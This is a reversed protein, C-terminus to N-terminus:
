GQMAVRVSVMVHYLCEYYWLVWTRTALLCMLKNFKKRLTLALTLVLMLIVVYNNNRNNREQIQKEKADHQLQVTGINLVMILFFNKVAVFKSARIARHLHLGDADFVQRWYCNAKHDKSPCNIYRGLGRLGQWNYKGDILYGNWKTM